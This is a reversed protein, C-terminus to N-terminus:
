FTQGLSFFFNFHDAQGVHQNDYPNSHSYNINVPYIPPNLNYSFDLRIPGIPTHYRVGLGAAHSFYDFRCAGPTGTSNPTGTPAPPILKGTSPDTTPATLVKCADRNPQSARLASKWADGANAFVNGMDHFLVLSVSDGFWPLTPPPLRLETSNVLAGAGGIPYGTEPDRPGAANVSFGRLSTSGGSYLREPLPILEDTNEGFAREQAYRSNRALVFRNKDFSWFNSNSVDLRNFQAQSGFKHGSLFEQFSTYTGRHADLPSDRTDRLWTMGPGAVRVAAALQAIEAPYVQLSSGQVKVRRFDMFYVLTNARSLLAPGGTFHETLRMGGNLKSSVYTTVDQSNAYGATFSLGFNPHGLFHPYQHIVNIKQELLGYTGQISASQERGFLNNRTVDMLLRPSIGPKGNPNCSSGTAAQYGKCNNQPTGTQTEFGFGYTLSWRRAESTQVLVTKWPESGASNEVATDVESFLAFEYLNRQTELLASQNLPDGPHLTIARTVTDPRTFHLGTLLVKRVFVQQGETIHFTVDLLNPNDARAKQEAEVEAQEYGRSLYDTLLADRDGAVNQPSVLQGAATNLLPLLKDTPTHTNGELTVTGVRQQTGEQIHYVVMLGAAKKSPKATADNSNGKALSSEPTVKISSFGNNQYVAVLANVDSTVLAQSYAGHRDLTDAAHVSLLDKLTAADFYHNGDVDVREVKRRAGLTVNYLITVIDASADQQAHEVKIDFYGLRQYYDRIRRDGENLLDEDVTGEEYIPIVRKLQENDLGAGSLKLEVAPGRAATFKYDTQKTAANYVQSELKVDAELRNQKQYQKLVGSLARNVTDRDVHMGARLHAYRRFSEVSMGPTGSVEVTGVHAQPGSTVQFAIDVLQEGPMPTLTYTITPEHYGNDALVERMRVLAQDLMSNTFRAGATLRSTRDLQANVTAGRAGYVSVTGIFTRPTGKFTLAVGDGDRMGTVDVTEFLGSAYVQRLTRALTDETLVDGNHLPLRDRLPTARTADVGEFTINRVPQGLLAARAGDEPAAPQSTSAPSQARLGLAMLSLAGALLVHITRPTRRREASNVRM